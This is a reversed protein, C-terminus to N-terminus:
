ESERMEELRKKLQNSVSFNTVICLWAEPFDPPLITLKQLGEIKQEQTYDGTMIKIFEPLVKEAKKAGFSIEGGKDFLYFCDGKQLRIEFRKRTEEGNKRKENINYLPSLTSLWITRDCDSWTSVYLLEGSVVAHKVFPINEYYDIILEEAKTKEYNHAIWRCMKLDIRDARNDSVNLDEFTNTKTINHFGDPKKMKNKRKKKLATIKEDNIYIKDDLRTVVYPKEIYKGNVFVYGTDIPNGTKKRPLKNYYFFCSISVLLMLLFFSIVIRKKREKTMKDGIYKSHGIKIVEM